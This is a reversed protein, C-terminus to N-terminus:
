APEGSSGVAALGAGIRALRSALEGLGARGAAPEFLAVLARIGTRKPGSLEHTVTPDLLCRWVAHAFPFGEEATIIPKGVVRSLASRLQEQTLCIGLGLQDVLGLTAEHGPRAELHRQAVAIAEEFRGLRGLLVALRYFFDPDGAGLRWFVLLAYDAVSTQGDRLLTQVLDEVLELLPDLDPARAIERDLAAADEGRGLAFLALSRAFVLGASSVGHARTIELLDLMVQPREERVLQKLAEFHMLTLRRPTPEFALARALHRHWDTAVGHENLLWQAAWLHVHASARAQLARLEPPMSPHAVLAAIADCILAPYASVRDPQMSLQGPHRAYRALPEPMHEVADHAGAAAWLLYETCDPALDHVRLYAEIAKRRFFSACVPPIFEYTFVREFDWDPYKVIEDGAGDLDTEIFDGYVAGLEPRAQLRAVARSVARPLLEEDSWCFAVIEGRCRRLGRIFGDNQDRDRESVVELRDGYTRLIELTADTSLGDQVVLQLHPYDQAVLSDLCRRISAAADKCVTLVSVLPTGATAM